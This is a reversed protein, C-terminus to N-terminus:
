RIKVTMSNSINQRDPYKSSQVIAPEAKFTGKSVVRAYYHYTNCQGSFPAYKSFSIMQDKTYEPWLRCMWERSNSVDYYGYYGVRTSFKLGSPLYDRVEYTGPPIGGRSGTTINVRVLDGEQFDNTIKGSVEYSKTISLNADKVIKSPDDVIDYYSVVGVKGNINSFSINKLEDASVFIREEQEAKLTVSETKGNLTYSFSVEPNDLRKLSAAIFGIKEIAVLEDVPQNDFMYRGLGEASSDDLEAALKAILANTFYKDSNGTDDVYNYTSRSVLKPKINKDFYQRAEDKAGIANFASAVFVKDIFKLGVDDQINRLTVLVPEQLAALGYLARIMTSLDTAKDPFFGYFYDSLGEKSYVADEGKILDAMRASLEVDADARQFIAFGGTDIQFNNLDINENSIEEKFYKKLLSKAIPVVGRQDIRPGDNWSIDNLAQYYMGRDRSVFLLSAGATGGKINKLDSSMDYYNYDAKTFYTKLVEIDRIISDQMGGGSATIKIKHKGVALNGLDFDANVAAQREIKKFPLTDSEIRYNISDPIGGTGFVRARMILNDGALYTKNLSADVFFPLSVPIFSTDKGAFLDKTVAEINLRWSTLNDPLKFKFKATGNTGTKIQDYVSVDKFDGRSEGGGKEENHVWIGDAFYTHKDKVEFNYVWTVGNIKEITKVPVLKGAENILKDGVRIKGAELWEGNVFLRHNETVRMKDNVILYGVVLHKTTRVVEATFLSDDGEDSRTMVMDGPKISEINKYGFPIKIKTEALFCGGREAGGAMADFRSELPTAHSSRTVLQSYIAQYLEVNVDQENPNISFLAEDIGSINVEAQRPNGKPDKIEINLDVSEGPRYQDKDRSVKIVLNKEKSDLAASRPSTEYFTKGDFWVGYVNLSPAYEEKFTNHYNTSETVNGSIIGRSTEYFLINKGNSAIPNRSSDTINFDMSEGFKYAWKNEPGNLVIGWAGYYSGYGFNYNSGYAYRTDVIAVGKDDQTSIQFKYSKNKELKYTHAAKGAGDTRVVDKQLKNEEVWYRYEPIMEKTIPDYRRGTEESKSIQEYIEINVDRGSVPAGKYGNWFDLEKNAKELDVRNLNIDLTSNLNKLGQNIQMTVNPGFVYVYTSTSIEGEEAVSPMVTMNMYQPYWKSGYNQAVVSIKGVGNKDLRLKKNINAAQYYKIELNAVPTGDFFEARINYNVTEGEFVAKKDADVVLRYAPKTYTEINVGKAVVIDEGNKITLTYYGPKINKIDLAGTFTNYDTVKTTGEALVRTDPGDFDTWYSNSLYVKLERGSVDEGSRQKAIGWFRIKDTPLYVTKDFSVYRWFQDPKVVKNRYGYMSGVIPIAVEKNNIKFSFFDTAQDSYYYYEGEGSASILSAPTDFIALGDGNTRGLEQGKYYVVAGSLAQASDITSKLWAFSKTGSVSIYNAYPTVQFWAQQIYLLEDEKTFGPNTKSLDVSVIYYGEGFKQPIRLYNIDSQAELSLQGDFVKRDEKPKYPYYRNHESWMRDPRISGSYADMYEKASTFRYIKVDFKNSESQSSNYTTFTPETDPRFEWFTKGFGLYGYRDGYNNSVDSKAETEFSFIKDVLLADDSGEVSLGKKITVTYVTSYALDKAPAFVLKDKNFEFKGEVKPFIDFNQNPDKIKERNFKVEIGTKVPNRTSKDRPITGVVSFPAKVQYAWSYSKLAVPGKDISITFIKNTALEATPKIEYKGVGIKDVDVEINSSTVLYKKISKASLDETSELIFTADPRIGTADSINASLKFDARVLSTEYYNFYWFSIGSIVLIVGLVAALKENLIKKLFILRRGANNNNAKDIQSTLREQSQVRVSDPHILAEEIDQDLWGVSKLGIRIQKESLGSRKAELIYSTLEKTVM